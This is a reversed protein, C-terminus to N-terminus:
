ATSFYGHVLYHDRPFPWEIQPIKTGVEIRVMDEPLVFELKGPSVAHSCTFAQFNLLKTQIGVNVEHGVQFHQFDLGKLSIAKRGKTVAVSVPTTMGVLAPLATSKGVISAVVKGTKATQPGGLSSWSAAKSGYKVVVVHDDVV